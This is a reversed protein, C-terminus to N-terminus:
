GPTLASRETDKMDGPGPDSSTVASASTSLTPLDNANMSTVILVTRSPLSTAFPDCVFNRGPLLFPFLSSGRDFNYPLDTSRKLRRVSSFPPSLPASRSRARSTTRTNKKEEKKTKAM